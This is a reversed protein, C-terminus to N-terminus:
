MAEVLAIEQQIRETSRGQDAMRRAKRSLKNLHRKLRAQKNVATRQEKTLNPGSSDQKKKGSRKGM